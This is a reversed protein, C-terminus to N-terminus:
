FRWNYDYYHKDVYTDIIRKFEDSLESAHFKLQSSYKVDDDLDCIVLQCHEQVIQKVLEIDSEPYNDYAEYLMSDCVDRLDEKDKRSLLIHQIDLQTKALIKM